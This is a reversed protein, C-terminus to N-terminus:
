SAGSARVAHVADARVGATTAAYFSLEHGDPDHFGILRGQAGSIVETHWVGLSDLHGACAALDPEAPVRINVFGFDRTAAAAGPHERLALTVTDLPEFAIGRVVGDEDPWEMAERLGFVEAYWKRSVSLDAVPIKVSLVQLQPLASM